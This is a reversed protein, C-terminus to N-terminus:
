LRRDNRAVVATVAMCVFFLALALPTPFDWLNFEAASSLPASSMM